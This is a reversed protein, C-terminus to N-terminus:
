DCGHYEIEWPWPDEIYNWPYQSMGTNKLPGYQSNYLCELEQYQLSFSNHLRLAREDNPHTDLYLATELLCFGVEMLEELLKIQKSDM